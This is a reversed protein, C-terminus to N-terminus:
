NGARADDDLLERLKFALSEFTFPKQIFSQGKELIGHRFIAEDSYGTMFLVKIESKEAALKDALNRGNMGPMIVDTLLLDIKESTAQVLSLAEAGNSADTVKYGMMKLMDKVMTRINDNDEVLLISENGQFLETPTDAPLLAETPKDVRPLYIKFTTGLNEESYVWIYGGSQKVIGYVTSLGLGTGKGMEKTTFFPEFAAKLVDDSMGMGDDSFALMVYQGPRANFHKHSYTEDLVVNSTEITLKGGKPMADRANVALNMLIQEIQSQDAKVFGLESGLGTELKVDEGILRKLIKSMNSVISNLNIIRPQLVQKRSFALIQQTMTAAHKAAGKIEAIDESLQGESDKLQMLALDTKGLIVTLLNNFDHAIGGALRGVTEMKQAQHLQVQLMKRETIDRAIGQVAVPNGNQYVLKTNVEVIVRMGDKKLIELDYVTKEEGAIKRALMEKAKELYDPAIFDFMSKGLAEERTYNTLRLGAENISTVRGKLDHSYIIDNANEVLDRYLKQSEQLAAETNKRQSIDRILLTQYDQNEHKLNGFIIELAVAKGDKTVGITEIAPSKVEDQPQNNRCLELANPILLVVARELLEAADYGFIKKATKNAFVIRGQSDTIIMPLSVSEIFLNFLQETKFNIEQKDKMSAEFSADVGKSTGESLSM